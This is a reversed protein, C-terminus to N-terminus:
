DTCGAVPSVHGMATEMEYFCMNRGLTSMGYMTSVQIQGHLQPFRRRMQDDVEYRKLASNADSPPKVEVFFVPS